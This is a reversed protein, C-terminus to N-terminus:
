YVSEKPLAGARPLLALQAGSEVNRVMIQLRAGNSNKAMLEILPALLTREHELAVIRQEQQQLLELLAACDATSEQPEAKEVRERKPYWRLQPVTAVINKLHWQNVEFGIEFTIRKALAEKTPRQERLEDMRAHIWNQVLWRQESNLKYYTAENSM